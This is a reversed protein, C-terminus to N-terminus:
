AMNLKLVFIISSPLDAESAKPEYIFELNLGATKFEAFWDEFTRFYWPHGNKFDGSLGAWADEMWQSNYKLGMAHMTAPHLTQIFIKGYDPLLKRVSIFLDSVGEKEYLCFNFVLGNYPEESLKDLTESSYNGASWDIIEEFSICSFNAKLSRKQATDILLPMADLGFTKYGLGELARCLWGEGCGLDLISAETNESIARIIAPNTIQRSPIAMKDLTEIWIKSNEEWTRVIEKTVRM